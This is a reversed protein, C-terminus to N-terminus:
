RPQEHDKKLQGTEELFTGIFQSFCSLFTQRRSQNLLISIQDIWKLQNPYIVVKIRKPESDSM